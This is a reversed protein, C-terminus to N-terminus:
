TANNIITTDLVARRVTPRKLKSRTSFVINFVLLLYDHFVTHGSHNGQIATNIKAIHAAIGITLTASNLPALYHAATM